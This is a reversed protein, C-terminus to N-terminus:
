NRSYGHETFDEIVLKGGEMVARLFRSDRIRYAAMFTDQEPAFWNCRYMSASVRRVKILDGQQRQVTRAIELSLDPTTVPTKKKTREPLTDLTETEM